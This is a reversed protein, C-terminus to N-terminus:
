DMRTFELGGDLRQQRTVFALWRLDCTKPLHNRSRRRKPRQYQNMQGSSYTVDLRMLWSENRRVRLLTAQEAGSQADIAFQVGQEALGAMELLRERLRDLKQHFSIRTL